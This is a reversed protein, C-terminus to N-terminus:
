VPQEKTGRFREVRLCFSRHWGRATAKRKDVHEIEPRGILSGHAFLWTDGGPHSGVLANVLAEYDRDTHCAYAPDPGPDQM